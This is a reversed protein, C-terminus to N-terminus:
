GGTSTAQTPQTGLTVTLHETNAGRRVTLQVRDGPQHTAIAHRAPRRAAGDAAATDAAASAVV